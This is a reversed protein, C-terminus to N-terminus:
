MPKEKVCNKGAKKSEYVALDAEKMLEHIDTMYKSKTAVGVSISGKWNGNKAQVNLKNVEKHINIAINLVDKKSAEPCIVFFEDGGLRCAFNNSKINNKICKSLEILVIDGADHGFTDNIQKFNDADIMICSLNIDNKQSEEWFYELLEIAKRRNAIGTLADTTAQKQLKKNANNLEQTREEVKKELNRNLDKLKKNKHSIQEFLKDFSNLLMASSREQKNLEIEYSEAPDIGLKIMEIQRSMSMDLGLIHYVLWNTLFIFLEKSTNQKEELFEQKLDLVDQLFTKHVTSHNAQHRMDLKYEQMMKEEEEFHYITYNILEQFVEELNEKKINDTSLLDGLSNTIDVLKHHEEDIKEIGIQLDKNWEFLEM